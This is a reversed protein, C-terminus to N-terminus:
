GNALVERMVNLVAAELADIREPPGGFGNGILAGGRRITVELLDAKGPECTPASCSVWPKGRYREADELEAEPDFEDGDAIFRACLPGDPGDPEVTVMLRWEAGMPGDTLWLWGTEGIMAEPDYPKHITM